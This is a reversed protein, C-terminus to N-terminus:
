QWDNLTVGVGFSQTQHQYEILSQGYGGFYQIYAGVKQTIPYSATVIYYGRTYLSEINNAEVSLVLRQWLRYSLIIKDYGLYYAIHPNNVNSTHQTFVLFWGNLQLFLNATSYEFTGIIRNWSREFEGGRGNSQHNFTLQGFMNRIIRFKLSIEPEYNTERFYPSNMYLQWYLLQTYAINISINKNYFLNKVLPLYLSLQAKFEVKDLPKNDGIANYIAYDPSGTYYFPLIYTPRDLAIYNRFRPLFLNKENQYQIELESPPVVEASTPASTSTPTSPPIVQSKESPTSTSTDTPQAAIEAYAVHTMMFSYILFLATSIRVIM